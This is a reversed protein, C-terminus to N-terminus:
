QTSVCSDSYCGGPDGGSGYTNLALVTTIGGGIPSWSGDSNISSALVVIDGPPFTLLKDTPVSITYGDPSIGYSAETGLYNGGADFYQLMPFGYTTDVPATMVMSISWAPNNLDVVTMPNPYATPCTYSYTAPAGTYKIAVSYIYPNAGILRAPCYTVDNAHSVAWGLTLPSSATPPSSLNVWFYGGSGNAQIASAGQTQIGNYTFAGTTYYTPGDQPDYKKIGGSSNYYEVLFDQYVPAPPTTPATVPPAPTCGSLIACIILLTAFMPKKIM